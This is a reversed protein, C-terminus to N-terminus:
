RTRNKGSRLYNNRTLDPRRPMPFSVCLEAVIATVEAVLDLAVERGEREDHVGSIGASVPVDTGGGGLRVIASHRNRGRV